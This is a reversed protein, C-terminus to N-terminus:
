AANGHTPSACVKALGHASARSDRGHNSTVGRKITM